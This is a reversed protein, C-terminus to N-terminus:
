NAYKVWIPLISNLYDIFKWLGVRFDVQGLPNIKAQPFAVGLGFLGPAIIGTRDDYHLHEYQELVPLKRKEFGVAYIAKNCLALSEEFTHDSTL